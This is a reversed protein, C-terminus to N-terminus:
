YLTSFYKQITDYLFVFGNNLLNEPIVAQGETIVGAGEGYLLKLIFTPVTFLTPRKLTKGIVKTLEINNIPHPSCLNFIGSLDKKEIIFLYANILDEIAIWSFHQKGNGIKGGLGLKFPLLMKPLAGENKDLVVSLRFISTRTQAKLAEQEWNICLDSLFNGGYNVSQETHIHITDYIGIASTSIFINPKIKLYNIAAVLKKTSEIRSSVLLQKYTENWRAAIPAGALNIVVDVGEIKKSLDEISLLLDDRKISIIEINKEIFKATLRKGIFGTSGSIAIKM